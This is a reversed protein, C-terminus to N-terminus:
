HSSACITTDDAFAVIRIPIITKGDSMIYPDSTSEMAKIMPDLFLNWKLPALVSGQGLGCEIKFEAGPGHATLVRGMLIDILAPPFKHFRYVAYM